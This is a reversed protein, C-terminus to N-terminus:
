SKANATPQRGSEGDGRGKSERGAEIVIGSRRWEGEGM